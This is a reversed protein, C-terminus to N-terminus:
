PSKNGKKRKVRRQQFEEYHHIRHCNACLVVCKKVEELAKKFARNRVLDNVSYKKTSRDVHHFDFTAPHKQGCKVCELSAKFNRWQTKYKEASVKSAAIVADKNSAYYAKAYIKQKERQINPNKYPM